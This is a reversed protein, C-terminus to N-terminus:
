TGKKTLLGSERQKYTRIRHCNACVIECKSIEVEIEQLKKGSCVMSSINYTKNAPNIHDFDMVFSPYCKRCDACPKQKVKTIYELLELKIKGNRLASKDIYKQKNKRYHEKSYQSFCARCMHSRQGTVSVKISFNEIPLEKQCVKCTKSKIEFFNTRM